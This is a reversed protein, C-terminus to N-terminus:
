AGPACTEEGEILMKLATYEIDLLARCDLVVVRPKAQEVLQWIKDRVRQADAFFLRGEMRVILLGPWTEDDPHEEVAPRFM